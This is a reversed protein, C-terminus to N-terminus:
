VLYFLERSVEYEVSWVKLCVTSNFVKRIWIKNNDKQSLVKGGYRGVVCHCDRAGFLILLCVLWHFYEISM